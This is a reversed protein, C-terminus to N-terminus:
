RGFHSLPPADSTWVVVRAVINCVMFVAVSDKRPARTLVAFTISGALGDSVKRSVNLDVPESAASSIGTTYRAGAQPSAATGLLMKSLAVVVSDMRMELFVSRRLENEGKVVTTWTERCNQPWLLAAIQGFNAAELIKGETGIVPRVHAPGREQGSQPADRSQWVIYRVCAM